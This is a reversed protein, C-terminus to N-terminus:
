GGNTGPDAAEEGGLAAVILDTNTRMLDIYTEFGSGDPGLADTQLGVASVGLRDALAQADEGEHGGETFIAPLGFTEILDALAELEAPNTEAMSSTSPLM